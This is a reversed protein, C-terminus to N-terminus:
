HDDIQQLASLADLLVFVKFSNIPQHYNITVGHLVTHRTTSRNNVSRNLEAEFDTYVYTNTQLQFLLTNVIAWNSLSYSDLDGIAANYVQQIRGFRASLNNAHVYDNLIGEIQPLLAPISLTYRGECHTALADDIIHMRSVFLPHDRWSDVMAVLNKHGNRQYYGIVVRSAYRTNGNKYLEVVRERLERPMSPAIPWGAEKFADAADTNFQVLRRLEEFVDSSAINEFALHYASFDVALRQAVANLGRTLEQIQSKYEEGLGVTLFTQYIKRSVDLTQTLSSTDIKPTAIYIDPVKISLNIRNILSLQENLQQSFQSVISHQQRWMREYIDLSESIQRFARNLSSSVKM